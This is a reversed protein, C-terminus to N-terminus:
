FTSLAKPINAPVVCKQEKKLRKWLAMEANKRHDDRKFERSFEVSILM